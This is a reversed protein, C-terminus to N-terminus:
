ECSSQFSALMSGTIHQSSSVKFWRRREFLNSHCCIDCRKPSAGILPAMGWIELHPYNAIHIATCCSFFFIHWVPTSWIPCGGIGHKGLHSQHFFFEQMSPPKLDYNSDWGKKHSGNIKFRGGGTHKRPCWMNKNGSLANWNHGKIYKFPINVGPQRPFRVCSAKVWRYEPHKQVMLGDHHLIGSIPHWKNNKRSLCWISHTVHDCSM